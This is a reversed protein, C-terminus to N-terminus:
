IVKVLEVFNFLSVPYCPMLYLSSEFVMYSQNNTYM